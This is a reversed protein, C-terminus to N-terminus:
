KVKTSAKKKSPGVMSKIQALLQCIDLLLLLGLCIITPICTSLPEQLCMLTFVAGIMLLTLILKSIEQLIPSGVVLLFGSLLELWGMAEWYSLPDAQHSILHSPFVETFQKILAELHELEVPPMWMIKTTGTFMFFGGLLVHLTVLTPGM